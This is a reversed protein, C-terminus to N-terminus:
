FTLVGTGADDLLGVFRRLKMDAFCLHFASAKILSALLLAQAIISSASTSYLWIRSSKCASALISSLICSCRFPLFVVQDILQFGIYLIGQVLYRPISCFVLRAKNSCLKAFSHFM